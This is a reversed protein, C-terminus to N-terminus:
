AAFMRETPSNVAQSILHKAAGPSWEVGTLTSLRQAIEAYSRLEGRMQVARDVAQRSVTLTPLPDVIISIDDPMPPPLQPGTYENVSAGLLAEHWACVEGDRTAKHVCQKGAKTRIVCRAAAM